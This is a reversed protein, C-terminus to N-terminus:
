TFKLESFSVEFDPFYDKINKVKIKEMLLDTKNLILIFPLSQFFLNRSIAEFLQVSETLRNTRDDVYLTQDFENSASFYMVSTVRDFM